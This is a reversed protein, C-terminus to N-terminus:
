ITNKLLCMYYRYTNSIAKMLCQKSEKIILKCICVCNVSKYNIIESQDM